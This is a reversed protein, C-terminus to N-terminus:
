LAIAVLKAVYRNNYKQLLPMVKLIVPISASVRQHSNQSYFLDCISFHM